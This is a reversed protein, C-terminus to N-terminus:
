DSWLILVISWEEGANAFAVPSGNLNAVQLQIKDIVVPPFHKQTRYDTGNYTTRETASAGPLSLFCNPPEQSPPVAGHNATFRLNCQPFTTIYLVSDPDTLAPVSVWGLEMRICDIAWTNLSVDILPTDSRLTLVSRKTM